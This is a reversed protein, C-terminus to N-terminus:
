RMSMLPNHNGKAYIQLSIIAKAEGHPNRAIVCYTGTFDLKVQPIELTYQAGAGGTVQKFQPSDRYYDPQLLVYIVYLDHCFDTRLLRIGNLLFMDWFANSLAFKLDVNSKHYAGGIQLFQLSSTWLVRKHVTVIVTYVNKDWCIRHKTEMINHWRVAIQQFIWDTLSIGGFHGGIQFSFEFYTSIRKFLLFRTM